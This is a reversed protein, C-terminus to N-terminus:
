KILVKKVNVSSDSKFQVMYVGPNLSSTDIQGDKLEGVKSQLGNAQFITYSVKKGNTMVNIVDGTVPNPYIKFYEEIATNVDQAIISAKISISTSVLGWKQNNNGSSYEYIHANPGGFDRDLATTTCHLPQLSYYTGNEVVTWKQHNSNANIYSGVNRTKNQPKQNIACAGYPVELFQKTAVNQITYANEGVQVFNWKQLNSNDNAVAMEANGSTNSSKKNILREQNFPNVMYYKGEQFAAVLNRAVPDLNLNPEFQNVDDIIDGDLTNPLLVYLGDKKANSRRKDQRKKESDGDKIGASHREEYEIIFEENKVGSNDEYNIGRPPTVFNEMENRLGSFNKNTTFVPPYWRPSPFTRFTPTVDVRYPNTNAQGANNKFWHYCRGCYPRSSAITVQDGFFASPNQSNKRVTYLYTVISMEAHLNVGTKKNNTDKLNHQARDTLGIREFNIGDINISANNSNTIGTLYVIKNPDPLGENKIITALASLKTRYSGNQIEEKTGILEAPLGTNNSGIVYIDDFGADVNPAKYYALSVTLGTLSATPVDDFKFMEEITIVQADINSPPQNVFTNEDISTITITRNGRKFQYKGKTKRLKPTKPNKGEERLKDLKKDQVSKKTGDNIIERLNKKGKEIAKKEVLEYMKISANRVPIAHTSTQQSYGVLNLVLFLILTLLNKYTIDIYKM